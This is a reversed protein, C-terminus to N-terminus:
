WGSQRLLPQTIHRSSARISCTSLFVRQLTVGRVISHRCGEENEEEEVEEEEEEEEVEECLCVCVYVCLTVFVLIGASSM